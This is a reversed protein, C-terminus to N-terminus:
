PRLAFLQYVDDGITEVPHLHEQRLAKLAAPEPLPEEGAANASLILELGAQFLLVHTVGEERWAEAISGADGHVYTLHGFEDLISDPRCDRQCYYSRPEWLFAVAAEEPLLNVEQMALYHYGLRRELNTQEPEDGILYTWPQQPLWNAFRIVVGLLLVLGIVLYLQRQLSFRPRDFRAMDELLWAMAPCLAVLASLLLRSQWLSASMVVGLTWFLYQVLAFLLLANFDRPRRGGPRFLVYAILLPLFLLFLPGTDGDRSADRLGLTLDFPLTLLRRVLYVPSLDCGQAHQGVLHEAAGASCTTPDYGIGTGSEAYAAARFDDWNVGGFVFPYVPNGTFVLSKLYWPAAVIAAVGMLLVAPWVVRRLDRRGWWLLLALLTLPAVFSTYKVSMALGCMVGAVILWGEDTFRGRIGSEAGPDEGELEPRSSNEQQSALEEHLLLEQQVAPQRRRVWKLIAYLAAVQFFALALDNYAWGALTFVMPISLLFLIALWGNKVALLEKALAYVLGVLLLAFALHLLVATADGRIAMALLFNMEILAPFNFHPIDPGPRIRGQELYLEPATLHYFLGDWSTPPLLALTLALIATALLLIAVAMGPRPLSLRRLLALNGRATALTLVVALGILLPRGLLGALGLILVLLGLAGAGAGMAFLLEELPTIGALTLRGVLWRGLGLIVFLIWLGALLDLTSRFLAGGSLAPPRWRIGGGLAEYVPGLYANQVVYYAALVIMLWLLFLGILLWFLRGGKKEPAV